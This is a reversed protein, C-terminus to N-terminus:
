AVRVDLVETLRTLAFVEYTWPQVNLLVLRGGRQRLKKHLGVLAGLGGASPLRVESLDLLLHHQKREGRLRLADGVSQRTLIRDTLRLVVPVRRRGM